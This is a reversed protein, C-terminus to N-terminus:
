RATLQAALRTALREVAEEVEPTLPAGLEFTAGAISYLTCDPVRGYLAYAGALLSQPHFSHTFPQSAAQASLAAERIAGPPGSAAADIFIARTAGALSDMLEPTLQHVALIAVQPNDILTRLREAVRVGV